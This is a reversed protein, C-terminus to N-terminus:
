RGNREFVEKHRHLWIARRIFGMAGLLSDIISGFYKANEEAVSEMREIDDTLESIKTQQKSIVDNMEGIRVSDRDHVGLLTMYKKELAQHERVEEDLDEQLKVAKASAIARQQKLMDREEELKAIKEKLYDNGGKKKKKEEM